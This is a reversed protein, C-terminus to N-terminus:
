RMQYTGQPAQGAPTYAFAGQPRAQYIVSVAQGATTARLPYQGGPQGGQVLRLTQGGGGSQLANLQDLTVLTTTPQFANATTFSPPSSYAFLQTSPHSPLVIPQATYLTAPTGTLSASGAHAVTVPHSRSLVVTSRQPTPSTLALSVTPLVSTALTPEYARVAEMPQAVAHPPSSSAPISIPASPAAQVVTAEHVRKVKKEEVEKGGEELRRKGGEKKAKSEGEGEGDDEDDDDDGDDEGEVAFKNIPKDPCDSPCRKKWRRHKECKQLRGRGRKAALLSAALHATTSSLSSTLPTFSPVASLSSPILSSLTTSMPGLVPALLSELDGEMGGEGKEIMQTQIGKLEEQSQQLEARFRSVFFELAKGEERERKGKEDLLLCHTAYETMMEGQLRLARTILSILQQGLSSPGEKLPAPAAVASSQALDLLSSSASSSPEHHHVPSPAASVVPSEEAPTPSSAPTESVVERMVEEEEQGTVTGGRTSPAHAAEETDEEDEEDEDQEEQEPEERTNIRKAVKGRKKPGQGDEHLPILHKFPGSRFGIGLPQKRDKGEKLSQLFRSDFATTISTTTPSHSSTSSSPSTSSTLSSLSLSSPSSLSTM